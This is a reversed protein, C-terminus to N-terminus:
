SGNKGVSYMQEPLEVHLPRDLRGNFFVNNVEVFNAELEAALEQVDGNRSHHM